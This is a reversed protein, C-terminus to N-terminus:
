GWGYYDATYFVGHKTVTWNILESQTPEEFPPNDLYYRKQNGTITMHYPEDMIEFEFASLPHWLTIIEFRLAGIQTMTFYIISVLLIFPPIFWKLKKKIM